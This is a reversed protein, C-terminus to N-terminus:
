WVTTCTRAIAIVDDRLRYPLVCRMCWTVRSTLVVFTMCDFMLYIYTNVHSMCYYFSWCNHHCCWNFSSPHLHHPPPLLVRKIFAFLCKQFGDLIYTLLCLLSQAFSATYWVTFRDATLLTRQHDVAKISM